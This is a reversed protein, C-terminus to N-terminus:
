SVDPLTFRPAGIRLTETVVMLGVGLTTFGVVVVVVPPEDDVIVRGVLVGTILLSLLVGEVVPGELCFGVTTFLVMMWIWVWCSSPALLVTVIATMAEIRPMM